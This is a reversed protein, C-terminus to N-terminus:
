EGVAEANMIAIDFCELVKTHANPDNIADNVSIISPLSDYFIAANHLYTFINYIDGPSSNINRVAGAACWCVANPSRDWVPEGASNRASTHQTWRNPKVILRRAKKLM